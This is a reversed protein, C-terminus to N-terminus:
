ACYLLSGGNLPEVTGVVLTRIHLAITMCQGPSMTMLAPEMTGVDPLM